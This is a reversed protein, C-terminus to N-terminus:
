QKLEKVVVAPNGAVVTFPPVDKTVVSCAAVIAGEGITVGKLITSNFGIWANDHIYVPKENLNLGNHPHGSKIISKYHEHRLEKDLPHGNNDQINVNHSILVNNGIIIEIASWIKSFEGLYCYDGIVMKGGHNFVFLEGRISCYNGVKISLRSKSNIV